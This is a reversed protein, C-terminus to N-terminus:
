RNTSCMTCARSFLGALEAALWEKTPTQVGKNMAAAMVPEYQMNHSKMNHSKMDDRCNFAAHAVKNSARGALTAGLAPDKARAQV